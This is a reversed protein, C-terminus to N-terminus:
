YHVALWITETAPDTWEVRHKKHAPINLYDGSNLYVSPEDQFALRARGRLVIVWEHQDQDYWQTDPSIHGKSIIREIKIANSTLITQFVEEPLNQPVAAYINGM